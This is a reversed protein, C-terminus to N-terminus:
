HSAIELAKKICEDESAKVQYYGNKQWIMNAIMFKVDEILIKKDAPSCTKTDIKEAQIANLLM